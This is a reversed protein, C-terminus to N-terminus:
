EREMGWEVELGDYFRVLVRDKSLIKVAEVLQRITSEEWGKLECQGASLLSIVRNMKHEAADNNEQSDILQAKQTKLRTTNDTIRKFDEAYKLYGDRQSKQFLTQFEQELEAIEQNVQTLLEPNQKKEQLEENLAESIQQVLKEKPSMLSNIASLIAQQLAIEDITPSKKCYKKGYELRSICRWVARKDGNKSWTCRRYLKGCEGCIVRGTLAYKASYESLGTPASKESIAKISNRKALETQAANFVDRSIIAEHHDKVLYMPLQGTNKVVKKSICDAIFTKQLLVDGCYKENCLIRKIRTVSWRDYHNPPLVNDKELGDLIMRLSEGALYRDFIRRVIEAHEPIIKPKGDEGKEYAYLYKYRLVVKGERMAQRQGWRVNQSISESEAQAFAGMMTILMESESELTNINEKEFIIAIGLDKLLRVYNLCDLTNRSFRSISKVLILDIKRQKCLRIMRLFEPRKRASTGTIGEDAFIGAMSWEPNTMIKDTYYNKQAEYSTLQEEDDTSVRCYAAVRLIKKFSSIGCLETKAPIMMVNSALEPM